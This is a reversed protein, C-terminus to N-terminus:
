NIIMNVARTSTRFVRDGVPTKVIAELHYFDNEAATKQFVFQTLSWVKCLLSVNLVQLAETDVTGTSQMAVSGTKLSRINIQGRSEFNEASGISHSLFIVPQSDVDLEV